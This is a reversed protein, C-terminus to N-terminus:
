RARQKSRQATAPHIRLVLLTTVQLRNLPRIELVGRSGSRCTCLVGQWCQHCAQLLLKNWEVSRCDQHMLMANELSQRNLTLTLIITKMPLRM